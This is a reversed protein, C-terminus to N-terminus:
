GKIKKDEGIIERLKEELLSWEDPTLKALVSILRRRFDDEEDRLVDGFFEEIQEDRTMPVFMEGTGSRLWEENVNYVRCISLLMQETLNRTGLEINSIATKGVGLSAGFKEMTLGLSKRVERVRQGETM